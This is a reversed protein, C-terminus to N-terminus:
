DVGMRALEADLALYNARADPSLLSPACERKGPCLDLQECPDRRLDFLREMRFGGANTLRMLKYRENKITRLHARPRFPLGQLASPQNPVFLESYVTTRLPVRAGRLYPVLSVSDEAGVGTGALETLTAFLDTSSVLATCEGPVVRPGTVLLPVRVGSEYPTGKGREPDFCSGPQGHSASGPTGNDGIVFVYPEPGLARLDAFLRGLERDLATVVRDEARELADTSSAGGCDGAPAALHAPPDDFPDHAGHMAVYLLWPPRLRRAFALAEDVNDSIAYSRECSAELGAGRDAYKVWNHYGLPAIGGCDPDSAMEERLNFLSGSFQGFGAQLPHDVGGDRPSMLHWKGIAATDYGLLARPLTLELDVRLGLESGSPPIGQGIGTRFSHRGTLIQARTPSCIANTWANRFLVGRAALADLHPTCPPPVGRPGEGYAALKDVGVDDLVVLVFNPAADRPPRTGVSDGGQESHAQLAFLLAALPM